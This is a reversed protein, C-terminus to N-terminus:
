FGYRGMGDLARMLEEREEHSLHGTQLDMADRGTAEIWQRRQQSTDLLGQYRELLDPAHGQLFSVSLFTPDIDARSDVTPSYVAQAYSDFLDREKKTNFPSPFPFPYNLFPLNHSSSPRVRLIYHFQEWPRHFEAQEKSALFQMVVEPINHNRTEETIIVRRYNSAFPNTTYPPGSDPNESTPPPPSPSRSKLSAIPINSDPPAPPHPPYTTSSSSYNLIHQQTTPPSTPTADSPQSNTRSLIQNSSDM